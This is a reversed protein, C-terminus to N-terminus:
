HVGSQKLLYISLTIKTVYVQYSILGVVWFSFCRNESPPFLNVSSKEVTTLCQAKVCMIDKVRCLLKRLVPIVLEVKRILFTLCLFSGLYYTTFGPNTPLHGQRWLGVGELM